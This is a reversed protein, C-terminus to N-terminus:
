ILTKDGYKMNTCEIGIKRVERKIMEADALAANRIRFFSANRKRM